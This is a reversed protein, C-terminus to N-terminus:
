IQLEQALVVKRSKNAKKYVALTEKALDYTRVDFERLVISNDEDTKDIIYYTTM